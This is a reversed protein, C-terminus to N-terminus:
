SPPVSLARSSGRSVGRGESALLLTQPPPGASQALLKPHRPATKSTLGIPNELESRKQEKPALGINWIPANPLCQSLGGTGPSPQHQRGGPDCRGWHRSSPLRPGGAQQHSQRAPPSCQPCPHPHPLGGLRWPGRRLGLRRTSTAAAAEGSGHAEQPGSVGPRHVSRPLEGAGCPWARRVEGAGRGRGM